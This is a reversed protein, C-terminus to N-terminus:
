GSVVGHFTPTHDPFVTALDPNNLRLQVIEALIDRYDITVDLDRQQFLQEPALGPWNTLVRGGAIRNGLIFMVNGHGHDTGRSANEELVRGFESMVVVTVNRDGNAIVDAHFAALSQALSTMLGALEGEISGQENHTDWGGKDVAIAEVGADAKILVASARLAQGFPDPPYVAGNAPTYNDIDLSELLAITAQSNEAASKLPELTDAYMAVLADLRDEATDENGLLQFNSPDPIPLAQPAGLLTQPLGNSVGIARLIANPAMPPATLLHRGLWGTFLRPDRAKGVEMFHQADFHSRTEDISGTAHVILLDGAIYSELLSNMTPPLGFFGDLDTAAFPSNSDPRPVALTPRADYYFDEGHPVCLSLGDCGGRLYISVLIDRNSDFTQAYAVRPLWAPVTAAAFIAATNGLFQRRSLARYEDCGCSKAHASM